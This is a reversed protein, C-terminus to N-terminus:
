DHGNKSQERITAAVGTMAWPGFRIRGVVAAALLVAALLGSVLDSAFAVTTANPGRISGIVGFTLFALYGWFAWRWKRISGLTLVGALVTWISWSSVLVWARFADSSAAASTIPRILLIWGVLVFAILYGAPAVQLPRTLRTPERVM